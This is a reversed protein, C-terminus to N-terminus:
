CSLPELRTSDGGPVPFFGDLNPNRGKFAILRALSRRSPDLGVRGAPRGGFRMRPSNGPSPAPPRPHDLTPIEPTRGPPLPNRDGTVSPSAVM